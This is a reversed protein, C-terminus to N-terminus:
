LCVRCLIFAASVCSSKDEFRQSVTDKVGSKVKFAWMKTDDAKWPNDYEYGMNELWWICKLYFQIYLWKSDHDDLVDGFWM